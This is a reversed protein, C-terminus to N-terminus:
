ERGYWAADNKSPSEATHSAGCPVAPGSRTTAFGRLFNHRGDAWTFTSTHLLGAAPGTLAANRRQPATQTSSTVQAFPAAGLKGGAGAARETGLLPARDQAPRADAAAALHRALVAAEDGIAHARPRAGDVIQALPQRAVPAEGVAPAIEHDIRQIRGLAAQAAAPQLPSDRNLSRYNPGPRLNLPPRM